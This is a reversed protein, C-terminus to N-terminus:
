RVSLVQKVRKMLNKRQWERVFVAIDDYKNVDKSMYGKIMSLSRRLISRGIVYFFDYGLARMAKGYYYLKRKDMRTPRARGADIDKYQKVKFGMQMAKFVVYSEWGWNVPFFGIKKLLKFDYVRGSGRPMEPHYPEGRIHGSAIKVDEQVMRSIIEELYNEPLVHDAGVILVYDCDDPVRKLGENLVRALEPRGTYSEKHPPLNVVEGYKKAIEATRDTSGDNVIIIKEVKLTQKLLSELTQEIRYEENRAPVIAYVRLGKYKEGEM